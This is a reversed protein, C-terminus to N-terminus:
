STSPEDAIPRTVSTPWTTFETGTEQCRRLYPLFRAEEFTELDLRLRVWDVTM